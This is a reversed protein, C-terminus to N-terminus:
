RLAESGLVYILVQKILEISNFAEEDALQHEDHPLYILNGEGRIYERVEQTDKCLDKAVTIPIKHHGELKKRPRKEGCFKKQFNYKDLKTEDSFNYGERNNSM